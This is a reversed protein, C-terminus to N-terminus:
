DPTNDSSIFDVLRAMRKIREVPFIGLPLTYGAECFVLYNKHHDQYHIDFMNVGTAALFAYVFPCEVLTDSEELLQVRSLQVVDLGQNEASGQKWFGHENKDENWVALWDPYAERFALQFTNSDRQLAQNLQQPSFSLSRAFEAKSALNAATLFDTINKM